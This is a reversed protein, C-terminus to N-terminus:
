NNDSEKMCPPAPKTWRNKAMAGRDSTTRANVMAGVDDRPVRRHLKQAPQAKQAIESQSGKEVEGISRLLGM